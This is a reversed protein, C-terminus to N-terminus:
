INKFTKSGGTAFNTDSDSNATFKITGKNMSFSSSTVAGIKFADGTGTIELTGTGLTIGLDTGSPAQFKPTKINKNNATFKARNEIELYGTGVITLDDALSAYYMSNGRGMTIYCNLELGYTKLSPSNYTSTGSIRLLGTHSWTIRSPGGSFDITNGYTTLDGSGGITM